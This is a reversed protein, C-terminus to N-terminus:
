LQQMAIAPRQRTAIVAPILGAVIGGVLALAFGLGLVLPSIVIPTATSLHALRAIPVLMLVLMAAVCGIAGGLAAQLLSEVVVQGTISGNTWGIAKLIGIERRREVVAAIQSKMVSGLTFLCVLLIMLWVSHENMGLVMVAPKYCSSGSALSGGLRGAEEKAQALERVSNAQVLLVNFHDVYMPIRRGILAQLESMLMYLDARAARTNAASNVIGVITYSQGAVRLSNGITLHRPGAYAQEVLIKRTDGTKLFRNNKVPVLDGPGCVTADVVAADEPRFGGVTITTHESTDLFRFLIYPAVQRIYRLSPRAKLMVLGVPYTYVGGPGIYAEAISGGKVDHLYCPVDCSSPSYAVFYTGTSELVTKAADRAFILVTLLMVLTGVALAYGLVNLATRGKRRTLERWACAVTDRM